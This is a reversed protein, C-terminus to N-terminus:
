QLSSLQYGLKARMNIFITIKIAAGAIHTLSKAFSGIIQEECESFFSLFSSFAAPGTLYRGSMSVIESEESSSTLGGLRFAFGVGFRAVRARTGRVGFGLSFLGDEIRDDALFPRM